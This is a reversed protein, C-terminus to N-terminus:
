SLQALKRFKLITYTQKSVVEGKQNIFTYLLTVKYGKGVETEEEASSVGVVKVKFSLHDDLRVPKIYEQDLAIGITGVYGADDLVKLVQEHPETAKEKMPWQAPMSWSMIMTPPATSTDWEGKEGEILERYHRIDSTSVEDPAQIVSSEKGVLKSVQSLGM